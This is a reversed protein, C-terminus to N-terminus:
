KGLLCTLMLSHIYRPKNYLAHTIKGSLWKSPLGIIRRQAVGRGSGWHRDITGECASVRICIRRLPLIEQRGGGSFGHSICSLVLTKVRDLVSDIQCAEIKQGDNETWKPPASATTPPSFLEDTMRQRWGPQLWSPREPSTLRYM